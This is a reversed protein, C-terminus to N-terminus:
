AERLRGRSSASGWWSRGAVLALLLTSLGTLPMLITHLARCPTSGGRGGKPTCRQQKFPLVRWNAARRSGLGSYEPGAQLSGREKPGKLDRRV